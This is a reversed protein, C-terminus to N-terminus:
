RCVVVSVCYPFAVRRFISSLADKEIWIEVYKEQTQMLDRRYGSLFDDLEHETFESENDWGGSNHFYRVRDEIDDWSIYGEIRGWKLLNSLMNYQSANNEIFGKGVLQYYIQRLTLPKYKELEGLTEIVKNLKDFQYGTWIWKRRAMLEESAGQETKWKVIETYRKWWNKM